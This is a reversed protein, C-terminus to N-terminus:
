MAAPTASPGNVGPKMASASIAVLEGLDAHDQQHEADADLERDLVEQGDAAITTGPAMACNTM